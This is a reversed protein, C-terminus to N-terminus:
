QANRENGAALSLSKARESLTRSTLERRKESALFSLIRERESLADIAVIKQQTDIDPVDLELHELSARPVMRMNTGCAAADFHRQAQPQNIAWALYQPTVVGLRPRLIM